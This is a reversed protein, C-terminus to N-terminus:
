GGFDGDWVGAERLLEASMGQVDAYLRCDRRFIHLAAFDTGRLRAVEAEMDEGVEFCCQRAAPGLAARISERQAGLTILVRVAEAAIGAAAGRWGAHVASVVPKGAATLGALLVPTCDATRVMLAVGADATAFGDCKEPAPVIVGEGRSERTKVLVKASHIQPACVTDRATGGAARALIDINERVTEGSDGHGPAVNLEATHPASSVGGLRTSFAHAVGAIGLVDSRLVNDSYTFM